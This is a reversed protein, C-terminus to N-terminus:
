KLCLLPEPLLSPFCMNIYTAQIADDGVSAATPSYSLMAYFYDGVLRTTQQQLAAPIAEPLNSIYTLDVYYTGDYM